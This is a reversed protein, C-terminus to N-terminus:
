HLDLTPDQPPQPMYRLSILAIRTGVQVYCRYGIAASAGFRLTRGDLTLITGPPALGIRALDFDSAKRWHEVPAAAIAALATVRADDARTATGDHELWWHGDHHSYHKPAATGVKLEIRTVQSPDLSLLTGPAEARDRQWQWLALALLVGAGLLLGLRQRAARKM